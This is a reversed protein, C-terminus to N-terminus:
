EAVETMYDLIASLHAKGQNIRRLYKENSNIKIMKKKIIDDGDMQM